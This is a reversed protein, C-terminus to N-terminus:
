PHSRQTGHKPFPNERIMFSSRSRPNNSHSPFFLSRRKSFLLLSQVSGKLLERPPHASAKCVSGNIYRDLLSYQIPAYTYLSHKRQPFKVQFLWASNMQSRPRRQLLIHVEQRHSFRGKGIVVQPYATVMLMRESRAPQKTTKKSSPSKQENFAVSLAQRSYTLDSIYPSEKVPGSSCSYMRNFLFTAELQSQVLGSLRKQAKYHVGMSSLAKHMLVQHQVMHMRITTVQNIRGTTMHKDWLNLWAHRLIFLNTSHFQSHSM